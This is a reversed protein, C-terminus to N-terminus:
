GHQSGFEMVGRVNKGLAHRVRSQSALRCQRYVTQGVLEQRPLDGRAAGCESLGSQQKGVQTVDWCNLDSWHTKSQIVDLSSNVFDQNRGTEISLGIRKKL